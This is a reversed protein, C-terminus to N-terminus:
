IIFFLLFVSFIGIQSKGNFIEEYEWQVKHAILEASAREKNRTEHSIIINTVNRISKLVNTMRGTLSIKVLPNEWRLRVCGKECFQEIFMREAESLEMLIKHEFVETKVENTAIQELGIKVNDIKLQSDSVLLFSYLKLENSAKTSSPMDNSIDRFLVNDSENIFLEGESDESKTTIQKIISRTQVGGIFCVEKIVTFAVESFYQLVTDLLCSSTDHNVDVSSIIVREFDNADCLQLSAYVSTNLYYSFKM